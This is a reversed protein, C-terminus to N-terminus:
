NLTYHTVNCSPSLCLAVAVLGFSDVAVVVYMKPNLEVTAVMRVVVVGTDVVSAVKVAIAAFALVVVLTSGAVAAISGVVVAMELVATDVVV